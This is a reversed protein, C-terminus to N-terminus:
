MLEPVLKGVEERIWEIPPARVKKVAGARKAMMDQTAKCYVNAFAEMVRANNAIASLTPIGETNPKWGLLCGRSRIIERIVRNDEFCEALPAAFGHKPM